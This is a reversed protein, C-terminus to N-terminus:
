KSVLFFIQLNKMDIFKNFTLFDFLKLLLYLAMRKKSTTESFGNITLIKNIVFKEQELVRRISKKTFFRLHTADLVGGKPNYKWDCSFLLSYVVPFYRVNPVTGLFIGGPRLLKQILRLAKTHEDIHEIIDNAVITDFSRGEEILQNLVDVLNGKYFESPFEYTINFDFYSDTIDVGIYSRVGKLGDRFNGSACGVELLDGINNPKSKKLFFAVDDRKNEYYSRDMLEISRLSNILSGDMRKM